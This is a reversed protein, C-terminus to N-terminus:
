AKLYPLMSCTIYKFGDALNKGQCYCCIYYEKEGRLNVTKRNAVATIILCVAPGLNPNGNKLVEGHDM